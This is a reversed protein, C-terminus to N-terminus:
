YTKELNKRIVTNEANLLGWDSSVTEEAALKAKKIIEYDRTLDAFKMSIFGSQRNGTIEGPGRIELDKEAILFGDNTSRMIKLREKGDESIQDSYVLFCYSALSSRGVRGRLQHLAALGFREAHEIVIVTAKPIDIGVEIVSTSVLYDLEGKQFSNLIEMKEDEDLKSHIIRSRRQPYIKRLEEYMSTVAKLDSAETDEIRPYVFYAQHSRAFEVEIAKFMDERKRESVLYTKIEKRGSPKEKITSIDMNAYFTLALTRPIPTATMFLVDANRGKGELEKMQEVGFRHMEDIIALRLNKFHVDMSFLAHTGILIDINGNELNELLLKRERGKTEGSLFAIRIGLPLLLKVANEAHQKALLETPAMFACQGKRAIVNLSALYAVLTKGSGVDGQLLRTMRSKSEIDSRIEDLAEKQAATLSFPLSSILKKELETERGKGRNEKKGRTRLASLELYFLEEFALSKRAMEAERLDKPFHISFFADKRRMLSFAEYFSSPLTDEIDVSLLASRVAQRVTNENLKGTLPYIPLIQGIGLEEKTRKIEFSSTEYRGKDLRSIVASIYYEEGSILFRELYERNFALISLKKQDDDEADIKFVKKGKAIFSSKGTIRIRCYIHRDESGPQISSLRKEYRRDEYARPVFSILDKITRIGLSAFDKARAKGINSLCSIDRDIM